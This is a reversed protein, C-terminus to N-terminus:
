SRWTESATCLSGSTCAKTSRRSCAGGLLLLRAHARLVEGAAVRMARSNWRKRRWRPGSAPPGPPGGPGRWYGARPRTPRRVRGPRPAARLHAVDRRPRGRPRLRPARRRVRAPRPRRRRRGVAPLRDPRDRPLDLARRGAHARARHVVRDARALPGLPPHRRAGAAPAGPGRPRGRRPLRPDRRAHAARAGAGARDLPRRRRGRRPARQLHPRRRRAARAAPPRRRGTWREARPGNHCVLRLILPRIAISGFSRRDDGSVGCPHWVTVMLAVM